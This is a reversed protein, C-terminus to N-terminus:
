SFVPSKSGNDFESNYFGGALKDSCEGQTKLKKYFAQINDPVTLASASALLLPILLPHM